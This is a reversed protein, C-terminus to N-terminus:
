EASRFLIGQGGALVDAASIGWISQFSFLRNDSREASVPEWPMPAWTAGNWRWAGAFPPLAMDNWGVAYVNAASTGWLDLAGGGPPTSTHWTSGDFQYVAAGTSLVAFLEGGEAAFLNLVQPGSFHNGPEDPVPFPTSLMSWSAGDFHLLAGGNGAV